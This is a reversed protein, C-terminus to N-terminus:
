SEGFAGYCVNYVCLYKDLRYKTKTSILVKLKFLRHASYLFTSYAIVYRQIFFDFICYCLATYFLRIHLLM